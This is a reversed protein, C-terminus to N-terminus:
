KNSKFKKEIEDMAWEIQLYKIRLSESEQNKYVQSIQYYIEKIEDLNMKDDVGLVLFPDVTKDFDLDMNKLKEAKVFQQGVKKQKLKILLSKINNEKQEIEEAFVSYYKQYDKYYKFNSLLEKRIEWIEDVENKYGNHLYNYLTDFESEFNTVYWPHKEFNEYPFLYIRNNKKLLKLWDRKNERTLTMLEELNVDESNKYTKKIKNKKNIYFTLCVLIIAIGIIAIVFTILSSKWNFNDFIGYMTVKFFLNNM